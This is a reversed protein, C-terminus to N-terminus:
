RILSVNGTKIVKEDTYLIAELSYVFVATNMLKGNLKGDWCVKPDTTEFVKEGWRDYIIFHISKICKGYVCELENAGDDNPSFANPVYIEGCDEEVTVTICATDPCENMVKVIVCYTSNSLPSAIPDACSTCSLGIAPYWQYNSGGSALLNVSNGIEITIDGPTISANAFPTSVVNISQSVSCGNADTVVANYVGTALNTAISDNGGTPFWNYSYPPIGGNADAIAIGSNLGCTPSSQITANLPTPESISVTGITTCNDMDTITVSYTGGSLGNATASTGGIPTWLFTYPPSGGSVVISASGDNAGNCSVNTYSGVTSMLQNAGGIIATANASCGASDIVVVDYTGPSLGIATQSTQGNNWQYTYPSIGGSPTVTATGNNASCSADTSNVNLSFPNDPSFKLQFAQHNSAINPGLVTSFLAGGGPDLLPLGTTTSYANFEGGIFVNNDKDVAIPCRIDSGGAGIYTSWLLSGANSFEALVIAGDTNIYSGCGPDYTPSLDSSRMFSIYVNGSTDIELNDYTLFDWASIVSGLGGFFTSWVLNDNNDFKSIFIDSIDAITDYYTGADMFPFDSSCSRGMIFLNDNKDQRISLGWEWSCLTGGFYTSWVLNGSNNFKVLIPDSSGALLSDYYGGSNVVPFDLSTTEGTLIVNSRSDSTISLGHDERTGGFYTSWVMDGDNTFKTIFIDSTGGTFSGNFYASGFPLVPYNLSSTYGTVYLYGATDVCASIARDQDDGGLYTAWLRNGNNDFKIVFADSIFNTSGNFTSDYYTGANQVPFDDSFTQGVVFINGLADSTVYPVEYISKENASGAYYTSWLLVGNNDFKRIYLDILGGVFSSDIYTGANLVPFDPSSTYGVVFLNGNLDTHISSPGDLEDTFGGYLTGWVLQPDIILNECQNKLNFSVEMRHEDMPQVIYSSPVEKKSESCYSFPAEEIINGLKTEFVLDGEENIILPEMSDYILRIKSIDAEPKVIFEYKIGTKSGSYLVWDIGPYVEKVVLKEYQKVGYIGNPHNPTFYNYRCEDEGTALINEKKIVADKLIMNIWTWKLKFEERGEGYFAESEIELEEESNVLMYTLGSKTLYIKMLPTSVIFLVDPVEDKKSNVIQGKNERFGYIQNTNKLKDGSILNYETAHYRDSCYLIQVWLQLVILVFVKRRM